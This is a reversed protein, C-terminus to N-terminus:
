EDHFPLVTPAARTRDSQRSQGSPPRHRHRAAVTVVTLYAAALGLLVAGAWGHRLPPVTLVLLVQTPAAVTTALLLLRTGRRLRVQTPEDIM